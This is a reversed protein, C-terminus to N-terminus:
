PTQRLRDRRQELRKVAEEALHRLMESQRGDLQRSSPAIVCLTGLAFGASSVLPAGAYFRINPDSTVLPNSAFRHDKTADEVVMLQDPQQIAHECFAFERPTETAELGVKAKFWQRGRDILSVLAIPTGCIDAAMRVLDDFAAEPPTDLIQLADLEAQRRTEAQADDLFSRLAVPLGAHGPPLPRVGDGDIAALMAQALTDVDYPKAILPFGHDAQEVLVHSYGSTLVVPLKSWRQRIERALAVGDMGAMVVDSFVASFRDWGSDLVMLAQGADTVLVTAYGLEKLTADVAEAVEPNDEIILVTGGRAADELARAPTADVAQTMGAGALPFYLTFSTGQGVTSRVEVDGGSQKAFGFVQSLGLGTGQGVPKTTYFPEFIRQLEDPGIGCGTDTVSVAVYDGQEAAHLRLAPLEDVRRVTVSLRGAGDMADRANVALNVIATDFQGSDADIFCGPAMDTVVEIRAGVLTGIMDVIAEVNHAADFVSPTLAQRRAFALLQGTLRAARTVTRAIADIARERREPSTAPRRLLAVSTSIVTLLNNFDHAVGGTLQGVAELKQSQRLKEEALQLAKAASVDRGAAFILGDGTAASWSISRYSGDHHRCRTELPPFPAGAGLAVTAEVVQPRDDPHILEFLTRGLLEGEHWGLVREWAPNAATIEGDFRTIVNLDTSLQWLRNRDATRQQVERELRENLARLQAVADATAMAAWTRDAVGHAFAIEEPTWTRPKDDHVLLLGKLQGARMLPVNLLATIGLNRFAQRHPSTRPDLAVDAISVVEGRHLNDIYSGFDRFRHVGAVSETAADRRWEPRVDVLEDVEDVVGYGARTAQMAMGCLSSAADTIQEATTLGRLQDGLQVLVAQKHEIQRRRELGPDEAPFLSTM